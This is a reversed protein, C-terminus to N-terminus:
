LLVSKWTLFIPSIHDISRILHEFFRMIDAGKRTDRKVPFTSKRCAFLTNDSARRNTNGLNMNALASPCSPTNVSIDIVSSAFGRLRNRCANAMTGADVNATPAIAV